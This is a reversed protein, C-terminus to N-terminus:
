LAVGVTVRPMRKNHDDGLVRSVMGITSCKATSSGNGIKGILEKVAPIRVGLGEARPDLARFWQAM